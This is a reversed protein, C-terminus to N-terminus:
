ANKISIFKVTQLHLRICKIISLFDVDYETKCNFIEDLYPSICYISEIDSTKKVLVFNCSCITFEHMRGIIEDKHWFLVM